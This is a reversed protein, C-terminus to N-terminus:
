PKWTPPTFSKAGSQLRTRSKMIRLGLRGPGHIFVRDTETDWQFIADSAHEAAARYLEEARRLAVHDRQTATVDEVTIVRVQPVRM